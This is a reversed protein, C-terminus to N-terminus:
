DRRRQRPSWEATRLLADLVTEVRDVIRSWYAILLILGVLFGVFDSVFSVVNLATPPPYVGRIAGGWFSINAWGVLGILLVVPTLLTLRALWKM